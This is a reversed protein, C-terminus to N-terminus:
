TMTMKPARVHIAWVLCSLFGVTPILLETSDQPSWFRLGWFGFHIAILLIAGFAPLPWRHGLYLVSCLISIVVELPYWGSKINQWHTIWFWCAPGLGIALPGGAYILIARITATRRFIRLALVLVVTLAGVFMCFAVYGGAANIYTRELARNIYGALRVFPVFVGGGHILAFTFAQAINLSFLLEQLVQLYGHRLITAEIRQDSSGTGIVM